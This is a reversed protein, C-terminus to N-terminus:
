GGGCKTYVKECGGGGGGGGGGGRMRRLQGGVM